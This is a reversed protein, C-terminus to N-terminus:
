REMSYVNKRTIKLFVIENWIVVFTITYIQMLDPWRFVYEDFYTILTIVFKIDKLFIKNIEFDDLKM